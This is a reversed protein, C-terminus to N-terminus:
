RRAVLVHDHMTHNDLMSVMANAVERSEVTIVAVDGQQYAPLTACPYEVSLIAGAKKVRHKLRKLPLGPQIGWVVVTRGALSFNAKLEPPAVTRQPAKPAAPPASASSKGRSGAGDKAKALEVSINKGEVEKNNM